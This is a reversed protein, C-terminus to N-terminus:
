KLKNLKETGKGIYEYRHPLIDLLLDNGWIIINVSKGNNLYDPWKEYPHVFSLISFISVFYIYGKLIGFIFGFATDISGLGSWKITKKLGKIILLTIFLILFFIVSGLIIDTILESEILGDLYPRLIPLLIKVGYFAILWKSFSILSAVFGNRLGSILNVIIFFIFIIDLITILDKFNNFFDSV